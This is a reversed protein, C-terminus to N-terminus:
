EVFKWPSAVKEYIALFYLPLPYYLLYGMFSLSSSLFMCSIFSLGWYLYMIRHTTTKASNFRKQLQNLSYVSVMCFAALGLLGFNIFSEILMGPALYNIHSDGFIISGLYGSISLNESSFSLSNNQFLNVVGKLTQQLTFLITEGMAFGNLSTDEIVRALISFRGIQWDIFGFISPTNKGYSMGEIRSKTLLTLLTLGFLTYIAFFSKRHKGIEKWFVTLFISIFLLPLFRSGSWALIKWTLSSFTIFIAIRVYNLSKGFREFIGWSLFLLGWILWISSYGYRAMGGDLSVVRDISFSRIYRSIRITAVFGLISFIVGVIFLHQVSRYQRFQEFKVEKTRSSGILLICLIIICILAANLSGNTPSFRRLDVYGRFRYDSGAYHAIGSLPLTVIFIVM